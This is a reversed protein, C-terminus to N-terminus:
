AAWINEVRAFSKFDEFALAWRMVGRVWYHGSTMIPQVEIQMEARTGLMLKSFDGVIGDSVASPTTVYSSVEERLDSYARPIDLPNDTTDLLNAMIGWATPSLIVGNPMYNDSRIATIADVFKTYNSVGGSAEVINIGYGASASLLGIADRRRERIAPDASAVDAIQETM